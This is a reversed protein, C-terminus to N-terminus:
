TAYNIICVTRYTAHTGCGAGVKEWSHTFLNTRHGRNPVGDDILLKLIVDEASTAGYSINEGLGNSRVGFHELRQLFSSGDASIHGTQGNQQEEALAKAAQAVPTSSEIPDVPPQNRLFAIAEEVAARGEQTALVCNRGCGHIVLGDATMDELYNELLPIYSQPNQRIRNHEVLVAQEFTTWHSNQPHQAQPRQAQTSHAQRSQAQAASSIPLQTFPTITQTITCLIFTALTASLSRKRKSSESSSSSVKYM